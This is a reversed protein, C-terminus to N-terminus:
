RMKEIVLWASVSLDGGATPTLTLPTAGPPNRLTLITTPQSTSILVENVIQSLLADRGAITANLLAPSPEPGVALVLQAAEAVSAQWFVRYIGVDPLVFQTASLRSIGNAPGNQPFAVPMNPGIPGANNPPMLAFFSGFV